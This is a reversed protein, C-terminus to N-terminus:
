ISLCTKLSAHQNQSRLKHHKKETKHQKKPAFSGICLSIAAKMGTINNAPISHSIYNCAVLENQLMKFTRKAKQIFPHPLHQHRAAPRSMLLSRLNQLILQIDIWLIHYISAYSPHRQSHNCPRQIGKIDIIIIKQKDEQLQNNQLRVNLLTFQPKEKDHSKKSSNDYIDFFFFFFPRLAPM